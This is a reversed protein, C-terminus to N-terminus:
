KHITFGDKSIHKTEYLATDANQYLKMFNDGNSPSMSAGISITLKDNQIEQLSIAHVKQILNTLKEEVIDTNPVDTMLIVFEDGGIRGVIDEKRFNERYTKGLTSLVIDGAYHGYTDNIHKFNDSDIIIFCNNTDHTSLYADISKQTYNKNFLGTLADTQANHLLEIKEKRNIRLIFLILVLVLLTFVSIFLTEYEEIFTYADQAVSVPVVYGVIWDNMGLPTYALYHDTQNNSTTDLSIFGETENTFDDLINQKVRTINNKFTEFINDGQQFKDSNDCTIVNGEPDIILSYGQGNFLDDFLLHSLNTVNYSGGLVGIVNDAKVVPVALVVRTTHDVSSELPDSLTRKGNLAEQFYTRHSINKVVGNDYHATGNPEILAALELDSHSTLEALTNMTTNNILTDANAIQSAIVELYQYQIDFVEELHVSQRSVNVLLNNKSNNVIKEQVFIFFTFIGIIQLVIFASILAIYKRIAKTGTKM